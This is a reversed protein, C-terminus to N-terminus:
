ISEKNLLIGAYSSNATLVPDNGGVVGSVKNSPVAKITLIIEPDELFAGDNGSCHPCVILGDDRGKEGVDGPTLDDHDRL